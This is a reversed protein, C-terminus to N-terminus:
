SVRLNITGQAFNSVYNRHINGRITAPRVSAIQSTDDIMIAYHTLDGWFDLPVPFQTVSQNTITMIENEAIHPEAFSIEPRSYNEGALEFGGQRPDEAFMAMRPTFGPLALGRLTNLYMKRFDVSFDGRGWYIVDGALISPQMGAVINLPVTLNGRLLMTGSVREDFIGIHLVPSTAQSSIPWVIDQTNRIALHDNFMSPSSFAIPQRQYGEYAIEIGATGTPTPDSAFLGAWLQSYGSLSGGRFVNLIRRAFEHTAFYM